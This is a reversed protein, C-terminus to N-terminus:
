RRAALRTALLENALIRLGQPHNQFKAAYYAQNSCRLLHSQAGGRMRRALEVALGIGRGHSLGIFARPLLIIKLSPVYRLPAARLAVDRRADHKSEACSRLEM